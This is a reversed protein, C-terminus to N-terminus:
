SKMEPRAVAEQAAVARWAKGEKMTLVPPQALDEPDRGSSANEPEQHNMPVFCSCDDGGGDRGSSYFIVVLVWCFEVEDM